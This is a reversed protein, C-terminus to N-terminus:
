GLSKIQGNLWTAQSQMKSLATELSSYQRQLSAKSVALRDDWNAIRKNIDTISSTRGQIALAISGTSGATNKALAAVKTALGSAATDTSTFLAKTGTPDKALAAAFKTADFNVTGDRSTSIGVTSLSVGGIGHTINSLLNNTLSRMSSDGALAGAGTRTGGSGLTGTTSQSRISGLAGNLADVMAQVSSTITATDQSTQVTVNDALSNLKLTLGPMLGEITNSSSTVDYGAGVDGVHVLSDKAATVTDFSLDTLPAGGSATVSFDNALGTTKSTLQLRYVGPSVQVAAATLGADPSANVARVVDALSSGTPTITARLSGDAGHIEIPSDTVAGSDTTSSYTQTSISAKAAALGKVSFTLSGALAGSAATATVATSSSTAAASGWTTINALKEAATQLTSMKTNVAQLATVEAQTSSLTTKLRNQPAAQLQMLQNIISTTDLGSVLGDVATTM